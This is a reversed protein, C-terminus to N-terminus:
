CLHINDRATNVLKDFSRMDIIKGRQEGV